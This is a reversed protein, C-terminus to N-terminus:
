KCLPDKYICHRQSRSIFDEQMIKPATFGILPKMSVFMLLCLLCMSLLTTFTAASTPMIYRYALPCSPCQCGWFSPPKLAELLSCGQGGRFRPTRAEQASLSYMRAKLGGFYLLKNHFGWSSIHTNLLPITLTGWTMGDRLGWCNSIAQGRLSVLAMRRGWYTKHSISHCALQRILGQEIFNKRLRGSYWIIGGARFVHAVM